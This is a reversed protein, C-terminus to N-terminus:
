NQKGDTKAKRCKRQTGAFNQLNKSITHLLGTITLVIEHVASDRLITNDVLYLLVTPFIKPYKNKLKIREDLLSM